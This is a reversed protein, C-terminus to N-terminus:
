GVGVQKPSLPNTTTTTTTTQSMAKFEVIKRATRKQLQIAKRCIQRNPHCQCTHRSMGREEGDAAEVSYEM